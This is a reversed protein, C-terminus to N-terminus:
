EWVLGSGFLSRIIKIAQAWERGSAAFRDGPRICFAFYGVRYIGEELGKANPIGFFIGAGERGM